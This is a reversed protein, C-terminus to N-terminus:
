RGPSSHWSCPVEPDLRYGHSVTQLLDRLGAARLKSLAVNLRNLAAHALMREGPWVSIVLEDRSCSEGPHSLRREVLAVLLRGANSRRRLDIWTSSFPLRVATGDRHVVIAASGCERSVQQVLHRMWRAESSVALREAIAPHDLWPRPDEGRRQALAGRVLCELVWNQGDPDVEVGALSHEAAPADGYLARWAALWFVARPRDAGQAHLLGDAFCDEAEPDGRTWHTWGLVSLFEVALAPPAARMRAESALVWDVVEVARGAFIKATALNLEQSQLVHPLPCAAMMTASARSEDEALELRGTDLHVVALNGLACVQVVEAGSIRAQRLASLLFREGLHTDHHIAPVVGCYALAQAKLYPSEIQQAAAELAAMSVRPSEVGLAIGHAVEAWPNPRLSRVRALVDAARAPDRCFIAAIALAVMWHGRLHADDPQLGDLLVLSGRYHQEAQLLYVLSLAVRDRDAGPSGHKVLADLNDRRERVWALQQFRLPPLPCRTAAWTVARAPLTASSRASRDAIFDRMVQYIDFAQGRQHLWSRARLDAVSRWPDDGGVLAAALEPDVARPLLSLLVLARRQTETLLVWSSELSTRISRHRTVPSAGSLSIRDQELQQTLAEMGVLAARGAAMLVLLPFGDLGRVVRAVEDLDLHAAGLARGREVFLAVASELELPLVPIVRQGPVTLQHRSTAILVLEPAGDLLAQVCESAMPMQELNDLVLTLSGWTQLQAAVGRLGGVPDLLLLQSLLEALDGGSRCTAAGCFVAAPRRRALELAARTKGVGGPGFLVILRWNEVLLAEAEELLEERGLFPEVVMPLPPLPPIAVPNPEPRQVVQCLESLRAAVEFARAPRHAAAGVLSLILATFEPHVGCGALLHEARDTHTSGTICYVLLAGLSFLDTRSSPPLGSAMEPAAYRPAAGVRAALGFDWLLPGFPGLVLSEACLDGHTWGARHLMQLGQAVTKAWDLATWEPIPGERLVRALTPYACSETVVVLGSVESLVEIPQVFFPDQLTPLLALLAPELDQGGPLWEVHASRQADSVHKARWRSGGSEITEVLTWGGLTLGRM